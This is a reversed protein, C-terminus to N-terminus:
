YKKIMQRFEPIEQLSGWSPDAQLLKASIMSPGSLLNELVAIAPGNDGLASYIMAMYLRMDALEMANTKVMFIAKEGSELARVKRGAGASALGDLAVLSYDDPATKIAQEILVSATDYYARAVKENGMLTSIKAIEIYKEGPHDFERTGSSLAMKLAKQFDQKIKHLLIRLMILSDGTNTLAKNMLKEVERTNGSKLLITNIKNVYPARWGPMLDMAKQHYTLASDYQRLYTYTLGINTLYMAERPNYLVVKSLLRRASNWDGIRRYVLSLYYLPQYDLPNREAAKQFFILASDFKETCYYHYFGIATELEPLEKNLSLAMNIDDRCKSISSSDLLGTYCGWSTAISRKVYALGFDPKLEIAKDYSRLASIFDASDKQNYNYFFHFRSENSGAIANLYNLNAEVSNTLHSDISSIEDKTLSLGLHTVVMMTIDRSVDNLNREDWEYEGTWLLSENRSESLELRVKIKNSDTWISGDLLFNSRLDRRIKRLPLDTERYQLTSIRPIVTLSRINEIKGQVSEVLLNGSNLLKFDQSYTRLPLFAISFDKKITNKKLSNLLFPAATGILLLIILAPLYNLVKGRVRIKPKKLDTKKEQMPIDSNGSSELGQIIDRVANAVKNIQDRFYTHNLNDKPSDEILRLPRNVGASKYIFDVGRLPGGLASECLRIDSPDLEHIKVPLVRTTVNGSQLKVRLGIQDHSSQEIFALFENQWAFSKPDCYTRSIIPIFVICRLKEALSASVDHTELLGDHPNIDFYVSVEEKFTSELEDKLADVFESVWREGKNDKQRYSIFIDYSFGEIISAM